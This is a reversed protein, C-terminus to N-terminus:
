VEGMAQRERVLARIDIATNHADTRAQKRKRMAYSWTLSHREAGKCAAIALELEGKCHDIVEKKESILSDLDDAAHVRAQYESEQEGIIRAHEDAMRAADRKSDFIEPFYVREGNMTTRYGALFRGHPLGAVIGIALEDGGYEGADTFWGKHPMAIVEHADREHRFLPGGHAYWVPISSPGGGNAGQGLGTRSNLKAFRVDRWTMPRIWYNPKEATRKFIALRARAGIALSPYVSVVASM